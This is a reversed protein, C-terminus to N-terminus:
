NDVVKYSHFSIGILGFTLVRTNLITFISLLAQNRDKTLGWILKINIRFGADKDEGGSASNLSNLDCSLDAL